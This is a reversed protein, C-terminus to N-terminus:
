YAPGRGFVDILVRDNTARPDRRIAEEERGIETWITDDITGAFNRAIRGIDSGTAANLLEAVLPDSAIRIADGLEPVMADILQGGMEGRLAQTASRPGGRVLDVANQFGIVRVADAVIPAARFSGEIAIDAFEDELREKVLASTLIRSLVDGRTGLADGLGLEAVQADWFGGPATLRAFANESSLLLLRRIAEDLSFAPLRTCAPLLLAAVGTCAGGLFVRRRIPDHFNTPM